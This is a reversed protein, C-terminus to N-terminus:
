QLIYQAVVPTLLEAFLEYGAQNFHGDWEYYLVRRSAERRFASMVSESRLGARKAAGRVLDDPESATLFAEEM